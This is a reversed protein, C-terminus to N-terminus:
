WEVGMGITYLTLIGKAGSSYFDLNDVLITKDAPM